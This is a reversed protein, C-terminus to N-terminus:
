EKKENSTNDTVNIGRADGNCGDIFAHFGADLQVEFRANLQILDEADYDVQAGTQIVTPDSTM